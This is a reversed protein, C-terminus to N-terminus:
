PSSGLLVKENSEEKDFYDIDYIGDEVYDEDEFTDVLGNEAIAFYIYFWRDFRIGEIVEGRNICGLLKLETRM